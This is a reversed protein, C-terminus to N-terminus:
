ESVIDIFHREVDAASTTMDSAAHYIHLEIADAGAQEIMRAFSIWGGPTVGNLSAMVPIAVPSKIKRLHELDEDPGLGLEPEPAFTEAEAFSDSYSEALFFAEMQEGTIEEEYLSRMVLLSAGFDELIRVQDLEDTLPGAGVILPDPLRIGLYTTTLDM